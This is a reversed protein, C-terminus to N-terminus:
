VNDKLTYFGTQLCFVGDPQYIFTEWDDAVSKWLSKSPTGSSTWIHLHAGGCEGLSSALGSVKVSSLSTLSMHFPSYFCLSSTFEGRTPSSRVASWMFTQSSSSDQIKGGADKRKEGSSFLSTIPTLDSTSFDPHLHCLMMVARLMKRYIWLLKWAACVKNVRLHQSYPPLMM